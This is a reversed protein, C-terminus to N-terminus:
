ADEHHGGDGTVEAQELRRATVGRVLSHYHNYHHGVIIIISFGANGCRGSIRWRWCGVITKSSWM